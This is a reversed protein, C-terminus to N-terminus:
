KAAANPFGSFDRVKTLPESKYAIEADTLGRSKGLAVHEAKTTYLKFPVGHEQCVQHLQWCAGGFGSCIVGAYKRPNGQVADIAAQIKSLGETHNSGNLKKLQGVLIPLAFEENEVVLLTSAIPEIEPSTEAVEDLGDNGALEPNSTTM